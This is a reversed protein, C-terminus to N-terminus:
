ENSNNRICYSRIKREIDEKNKVTTDLMNAILVYGCAVVLGIFAFIAIDKKHNINSPNVSEEAKDVIHVNNIKYVDSVETIFVEAIENAIEKAQATNSNTVNIQILQTSKVANVSISNKLLNYSINIGLNDIVEGLVKKSKILESYTAVLNNNLTVDSTTISDGKSPNESSSALLLTTYSTYVPSVFIYSYITGIVMFILVILVVYIKRTWFMNFIEKLDLEEM